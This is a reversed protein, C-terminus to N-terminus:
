IPFLVNLSRFKKRSTPDFIGIVLFRRRVVHVMKCFVVYFDTSYNKLGLNNKSVGVDM